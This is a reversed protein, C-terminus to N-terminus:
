DTRMFASLPPPTPWKTENHRCATRCVAPSASRNSATRLTSATRVYLLYPPLVATLGVVFAVDAWADKGRSRALLAACLSGVLGLVIATVHLLRDVGYDPIALLRQVASLPLTLPLAFAAWLARYRDQFAAATAFYHDYRPQYSLNDVFIGLTAADFDMFPPYDDIRWVQGAIAYAFAVVFLWRALRSV